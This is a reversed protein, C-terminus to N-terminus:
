KGAVSLEKVWVSPCFVRGTQPKLDSGVAVISKLLEFFNGAVTVQEVSQVRVGDRVLYGRSLLSFDGSVANAGAHLGEVSTVVLGNKMEAELSELTQTGPKIYFNSPAIGIPGAYGSRAANGTSEIGAKKATKLNHLLTTLTGNEIIAKTQTAVGESDFARTLLGGALLPDDMLTVCPAAITTGEKDALLSMQKQAAEASFIGSFAGLLSTMAGNRLIVPMAGSDCPSADLQSAAEEAAEKAITDIDLEALNYKAAAADGSSVRVGERAIAETYAVCSDATHSLDLGNTNIIRLSEHETEVFTFGLEKVRPDVQLGKEYLSLALNIRDEPTGLDGTTEVKAYAPSGGFIFQEDQDSTLTASDLVGRILMVIADRDLAETYSMGMKGDVLGRLSLGGSNNVAYEDVNGQNVLVRMSESQHFYVEAEQIGSEQAASLLERIFSEHKM